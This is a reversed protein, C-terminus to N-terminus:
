HPSYCAILPSVPRAAKANLKLSGGAPMTELITESDTNKVFSSICSHGPFVSPPFMLLAKSTHTHEKKKKSKKKKTKRQWVVLRKWRFRSQNVAMMQLFLHRIIGGNLYCKSRDFPPSRPYIYLIHKEDKGFRLSERRTSFSSQTSCSHKGMCQSVDPMKIQLWFLLILTSSVDLQIM